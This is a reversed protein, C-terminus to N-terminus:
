DLMRYANLFELFFQQIGGFYDRELLVGPKTIYRFHWSEWIYGTVDEMGQPFSLSFGYRWANEAMWRGAKSEAFSDDIPFFDMVTGLQHQSTGPRASFRSAEAEGYSAAYRKFLGDQYDYSRYSSAFVIDVGATQAAAAMLRVPEMICERLRLDKRTVSVGWGNLSVLDNPEYTTPLANKKDVLILMDGAAASEKEAAVLLDLFRDPSARIVTEIRAETDPPLVALAALVRTLRPDESAPLSEAKISNKAGCSGITLASAIIISVLKMQM